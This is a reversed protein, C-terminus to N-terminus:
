AEEGGIIQHNVRTEGNEVSVHTDIKVLFWGGAGPTIIHCVSVCIAGVFLAVASGTAGRFVVTVDTGVMATVATALLAVLLPM